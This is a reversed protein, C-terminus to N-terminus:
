EMKGFARDDLWLIRAGKVCVFFANYTRPKGEIDSFYLQWNNPSSFTGNSKVSQFKINGVNGSSVGLDWKYNNGPGFDFKENSAHTAMAVNAGTYANVYQLAGSFDNTWTGLLDSAAIAFKNYMAMDAMKGWVEGTGFSGSSNDTAGFEQNFTNRDPTIFELYKGSGNSYNKKFLIVHVRRGSENEVLDAEAFEIPEWGSQPKFEFNTASSYRPSVLIDWANKLGDLIVSNYADAKKNPYHILININGKKVDIWNEQVTSTWGNDFNTTTYAFGANQSSPIATIQIQGNGSNQTQTNAISNGQTNQKETQNAVGFYLNSEKADAAFYTILTSNNKQLWTYNSDGKMSAISWGQQSLKSMLSDENFGSLSISPLVLVETTALPIGAKKLEMELLIKSAAVSLTRSDKKSGAPLAIGTLASEAVPVLKKQALAITASLFFLTLLYTNKM